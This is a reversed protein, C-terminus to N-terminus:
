YIHVQKPVNWETQTTVVQTNPSMRGNNHAGSPRVGSGSHSVRSGGQNKDEVSQLNPGVSRPVAKKHKSVKTVM